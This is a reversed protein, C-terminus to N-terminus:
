KRTESLRHAAGEAPKRQAGTEFSQLPRHGRGFIIEGLERVVDDRDLVQQQAVDHRGFRKMFAARLQSYVQKPLATIVRCLGPTSAHGYAEIREDILDVLARVKSARVEDGARRLAERIAKAEDADFGTDNM